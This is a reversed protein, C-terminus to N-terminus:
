MIFNFKFFQSKFFLCIGKQQLAERIVAVGSKGTGGFVILKTM